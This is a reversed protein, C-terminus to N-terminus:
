GARLRLERVHDCGPLKRIKELIDDRHMFLENRVVGHSVLVLLAQGRDMRVPHSYAANAVGVMEPWHDRITQECSHQGIQYKVLLEDVLTAIPKTPRRRMKRPENFPIGRFEGILEQASKSFEKPEGPM